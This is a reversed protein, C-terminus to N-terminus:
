LRAEKIFSILVVWLSRDDATPLDLLSNYHNIWVLNSRHRSFKNCQFMIHDNTEDVGCSDCISSPAVVTKVPLAKCFSFNSVIRNLTEVDGM